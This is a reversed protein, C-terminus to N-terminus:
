PYFLLWAPRDSSALEPANRDAESMMAQSIMDTSVTVSSSHYSPLKNGSLSPGAANSLVERPQGVTENDNADADFDSLAQFTNQDKKAARNEAGQATGSLSSGAPDM